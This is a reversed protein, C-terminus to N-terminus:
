NIPLFINVIKREFNHKDLGKSNANNSDHEQQKISICAIFILFTRQQLNSM